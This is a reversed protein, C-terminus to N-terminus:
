VIERMPVIYTAVPDDAAALIEAAEIAENLVPPPTTDHEWAGNRREAVLSVTAEPYDTNGVALKRVQLVRLTDDDSNSDIHIIFSGVYLPMLALKTSVKAAHDRRVFYPRVKEGFAGTVVVARGVGEHSGGEHWMAAAGSKTCVVPITFPQNM